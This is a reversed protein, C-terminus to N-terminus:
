LYISYFNKSARQVITLQMGEERMGKLVSVEEVKGYFSAALSIVARRDELRATFKDWVTKLTTAKTVLDSKFGRIRDDVDGAESHIQEVTVSHVKVQTQLKNLSEMQERVSSQGEKILSLTHMQKLGHEQLWLLVKEIGSEFQCYLLFDNLLQVQQPWLDYYLPLLLPYSVQQPLSTELDKSADCLEGLRGRLFTLSSKVAENPHPFDGNSTLPREM